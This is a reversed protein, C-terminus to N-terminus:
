FIKSAKTIEEKLGKDLNKIDSESLKKIDLQNILYEPYYRINIMGM